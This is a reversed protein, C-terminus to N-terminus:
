GGAQHSKVSGCTRAKEAATSLAFILAVGALISAPPHHAAFHTADTPM